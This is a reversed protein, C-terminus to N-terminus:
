VARGNRRLSAAGLGRRCAYGRRAVKRKLLASHHLEEPNAASKIVDLSRGIAFSTGVGAACSAIAYM